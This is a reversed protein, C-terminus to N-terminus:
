DDDNEQEIGRNGRWGAGGAAGRGPDGQVPREAHAHGNFALRRGPLARALARAVELTAAVGQDRETSPHAERGFVRRKAAAVWANGPGTIKDVPAISATGYALAAIAQAGGVRYVTAVGALWLVVFWLLRTALPRRLRGDADGKGVM